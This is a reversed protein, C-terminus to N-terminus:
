PQVASSTPPSAALPAHALGTLLQPVAPTTAVEAMLRGLVPALPHQAASMAPRAVEVVLAVPAVPVVTEPAAPAAGEVAEAPAARLAALHAAPVAVVAVEAPAEVVAAVEEV